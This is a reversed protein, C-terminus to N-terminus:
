KIRFIMPLRVAPFRNPATPCAKDLLRNEGSIFVSRQYSFILVPIPSRLGEGAHGIGM